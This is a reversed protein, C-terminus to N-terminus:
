QKDWADPASFSDGCSKVDRAIQAKLEDLSNFRKEDRIRSLFELEVVEGYLNGYFGPLHAEVTIPNGVDVTPNNGINVVAPRGDLRGSYVGPAPLQMRVDVDLNATPFGLTRGLKRGEIVRGKISYNRGSMEAARAVDGAQLAKRILSSCVGPLEKAVLVEIGMKEGLSVYDAPSLSHGNRGFKNDYGSILVKAQFRKKLEEMWAEATMSSLSHTFPVEVVEAGIAGLMANRDERTQLLRPAREPAVIELPHRDFTIVVPRLGRERAVDTLERLVERHGRHVGDFTGVTVVSGTEPHERDM